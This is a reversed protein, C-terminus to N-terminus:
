EMLNDIRLNALHKGIKRAAILVAESARIYSARAHGDMEHAAMAMTLLRAGAAQMDKQLENLLKGEPMTTYQSVSM